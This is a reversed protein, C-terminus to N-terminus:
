SPRGHVINRARTVSYTSNASSTLYTAKGALASRVKVMMLRTHMVIKRESITISDNRFTCRHPM